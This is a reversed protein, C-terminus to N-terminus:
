NQAFAPVSAGHGAKAHGPETAAERFYGVIHVRVMSTRSGEGRSGQELQQVLAALSTQERRCIEGLADWLEPELRMSTRGRIAAVNRNVLRTSVM